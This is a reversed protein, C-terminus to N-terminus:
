EDGLRTLANDYYMLLKEDEQLVADPLKEAVKVITGYDRDQWAAAFGARVAETRFLKLKRQTGTSYEDFEKLLAKQRIQDLDVQKSADPVYWRGRARDVLRADCKDLNRLNKHNSSLYSHVQSPVAGRGDYSLFNQDLILKLEITAEHTAWTQLERMFLPQLDQFRQPRRYLQQRVWQIASAEDAVFINPQSLTDITVRKRDYEAVQDPLFYMGEREPFRQLLGELFEPHSIPVAAGRQVHFATMRDFLRQGQREVLPELGAPSVSVVPLQALHARVFFWASEESPHDLHGITALAPRYASIVLDQKTTSAFSLQKTTGKQKDLTRVGAVVFGARGLAQQIAHWVANRSNHFEIVIWRGPKLVRAYEAFSEELLTQYEALTKGQVSNVVAEDDTNTLIGLWAEVLTNLESYNLNGGFPPDTFVFDVSDDPVTSLSTASGVGIRVGHGKPGDACKRLAVIRSHLYGTAPIEATIPAVYLTGSLPGVHRDHNPMYRNLRCVRQIAGTLIYLGAMRATASELQSVRHWFKTLLHLNRRTFFHHVHTFGHSRIPQETNVGNPLQVIPPLPSVRRSQMSSLLEFDFRDPLKEFRSNGYRYNILVPVQEAQRVVENLEPDFITSWVRELSDRDHQYNCQPCVVSEALPQKPGRFFADWFVVRHGCTSCAFVDSWVVYEIHGLRTLQTVPQNHRLSEQTTGRPWGTHQTLLIGKEEGELEKVVAEITPLHQVLSGIANTGGAIFAAAPSLDSLIALRAGVEGRGRVRSEDACLQAAVGTMGTGCFADLVVDGPNTHHLIFPIIADPPVKTSYYHLFYFPDAKGVSVDTPYANVQRPLADVKSESILESVFPNPCFTLLPPHSSDLITSDSGRPSGRMHRLVPFQKRLKVYYGSSAVQDDGGGDASGQTFLRQQDTM